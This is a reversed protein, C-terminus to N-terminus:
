SGSARNAALDRGLAVAESTSLSKGAAVADEDLAGLLRQYEARSPEGLGTDLGAEIELAAGWLKASGTAAAIGGLFHVLGYPDDVGEVMDLADVYRALAERPKGLELAVDGLGHTAAAVGALDGATGYETRAREFYARASALDSESRALEALYTFRGGAPGHEGLELFLEASREFRDRALAVDGDEQALRGLGHLAWAQPLRAGAEDAVVLARENWPRAREIEGLEFALRGATAFGGALVSGPVDPELALFQEFWRLGERHRIGRVWLPELAEVLTLGLAPDNALSWGLAARVNDLESATRELWEIAEPSRAHGRAAEAFRLFYEAHRRRLTEADPQLELREAAFERVTELMAFREAAHRALSEDVLVALAPADAGCVTEAAELTWGGAFVALRPFLTREPEELLEFSWDITARLTRQRGAVDRPGGVLMGLRREVRELLAIPPLTKVRAAALELALPLRDLRECLEAVAEDARFGPRVAQAREAFLEVAAEPTLPDVAYRREGRVRLPARSTALVTAELGALAAAAEAVQEFNDLVLLMRRGGLREELEAEDVGLTQAVTPMVLAPDRVAALEVLYVGDEFEDVLRAAVELALRTKGSGGTGTLTVLRQRRLLESVETVERDRGILATTLAPLNSNPPLPEASRFQARLTALFREAPPTLPVGRATVASITRSLQWRPVDLVALAGAEVEHELAFRSVAAVGAGSAVTRKVAEWSPLELTRVARLGAEWRAVEVAERTASGEERSIWTLGELEKARLRRGGLSPPGVLVVEDEVLEEAELEAPLTLGGIVSLEVEHSRVLELAESSTAVRFDIEVEPHEEHFRALLEPLLYTGPVGSAALSLTGVQADAGTALARRANALLAEARLVYDALVEGAPTLRAGRRDRVVLQTGLETELSALHKSVAPQSVYLQEAARTLSGERAVAGFARLRAEVNM